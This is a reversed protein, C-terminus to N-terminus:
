KNLVQCHDCFFTRRKSKGLYEKKLSLDCRPCKKKSYVHWHKKLVGKQKWELFDFAYNSTEDMLKKMQKPTLAGLESLPHLKCIWLVENKIINGSGAVIDQDMLADCALMGPHEKLKKVAKASSWKPNMIDGSWDYTDDIDGEIIKIDCAYFNLQEGKSLGMHLKPNTKKVENIRYSGFMMLHIRVTFGSFMILTHKGWSRIDIIKKNKLRKIDEEAYGSVELVKRGKFQLIAEKLIIISPGEPM